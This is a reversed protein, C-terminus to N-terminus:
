DLQNGYESRGARVQQQMQQRLQERYRDGVVRMSHLLAPWDDLHTAFIRELSQKTWEPVLLNLQSPAVHLEDALAAWYLNTSEWSEALIRSSYGMMTPFLPLHLLDLRYSNALEPHPTGFLSAVREQNFQEPKESMLRQLEGAFPQGWLLAQEAHDSLLRSALQYSESPTIESIGEAVRGQAFRDRLLWLRAPEVRAELIPFVLQGVAGDVAALALVREALRLHLGVFHQDAPTVGWWRPVTAGLLIQPAL